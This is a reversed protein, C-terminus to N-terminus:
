NNHMQAIRKARAEDEIREKAKKIKEVEMQKKYISRYVPNKKLGVTRIEWLHEIMSVDEIQNNTFVISRLNKLDKLASIDKVKNHAFNIFLLGPYNSVVSVDSIQNYSARIAEMNFLKNLCSIDSVCNRSIDLETLNVLNSLPEVDRIRNEPLYLERLKTLDRLGEVNSVQNHGIVLVELNILHKIDDCDVISEGLPYMKDKYMFSGNTADMGQFGSSEGMCFRDGLFEIRKVHDLDSRKLRKGRKGAVKRIGKEVFKNKWEIYYDGDELEEAIGNNELPKYEVISSKDLLKVEPINIQYVGKGLQEDLKEQIYDAIDPADNIIAYELMGGNNLYDNEYRITLDIGTDILLKAIDFNKNNIAVRLPISHFEMDINVKENCLYQVCNTSNRLCSVFLPTKYVKGLDIDIEMGKEHHLYRLLEVNDKMCCFEIWNTYKSEDFLSEDNEILEIFEANKKDTILKCIERLNLKEM